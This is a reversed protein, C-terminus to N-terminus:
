TFPLTMVQLKKIKKLIEDIADRCWLRFDTSVQDNRSRATHLKKAPEGILDTLAAEINMHVDERDSRWVFEGAEIRRKIEDLGQLISDRDQFSILGQLADNAGAILAGDSYNEYFALRVFFRLIISGRNRLIQLTEWKIFNEIVQLTSMKSLIEREREQCM